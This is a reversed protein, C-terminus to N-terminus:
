KGMYSFRGSPRNKYVDYIKIKKKGNIECICVKSEPYYRCLLADPKSAAPLTFGDCPNRNGMDPLKHYFEKKRVLKKLVIKQHPKMPREEIKVETLTPRPWYKCIWWLIKTDIESEARKIKKPLEPLM